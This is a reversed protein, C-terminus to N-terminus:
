YATLTPTLEVARRSHSSQRVADIVRLVSRGDTATIAPPRGDAVAAAFETLEPMLMMTIHDGQMAPRIITPDRYAELTESQVEVDFQVFNRGRLAVFGSSGVIRLDYFFGPAQQTVLFQALRRDTFGLTLASTEDVGSDARDHVTASVSTPEEGMFWLALDILHCGVYLMPGGGSEPRAVWGDDMAGTGIAGTIARVEGVAGQALLDSVHRAMGYRFSYGVMCTVGASAAAFEVEKGQEETLAMPKEIMVNKGARIAALATPALADHPTAILVADVDEANLLEGVSPHASAGGSLAAVARAALTDPDVGAVLELHDSRVVARALNTGHFGCGVVATRLPEM